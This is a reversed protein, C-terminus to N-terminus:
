VGRKEMKLKLEENAIRMKEAVLEEMSRVTAEM